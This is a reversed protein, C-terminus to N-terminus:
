KLNPPWQVLLQHAVGGSDDPEQPSVVYFKSLKGFANQFSRLGVSGYMMKMFGNRGSNDVVYHKNKYKGVYIAVHVYSYLKNTPAYACRGDNKITAICKSIWGDYKELNMHGWVNVDEFIIQGPLMAGSEAAEQLTPMGNFASMTPNNTIYTKDKSNM